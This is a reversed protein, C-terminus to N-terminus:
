RCSCGSSNRNHRGTFHRHHQREILYSRIRVIRACCAIRLVIFDLFGDSGTTQIRDRFYRFVRIDGARRINEAITTVGAVGNQSLQKSFCLIFAKVAEMSQELWPRAPKFTQYPM